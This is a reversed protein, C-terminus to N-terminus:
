PASEWPLAAIMRDAADRLEPALEGRLAAVLGRALAAGSDFRARPDKALAIATWRDVDPHVDVRASPRVPMRHVVAYLITSTDHGSFANRGILTRYAVAGFAFLDARGDVAAGRAQEPAMYHPTGVLAGHTLAGSRDVLAAIGFDVIKWTLGDLFLNQPKLDRHVIGQAHVADLGDGIQTVFAVLEARSLQGKKRLLEALTAGRLREMAIFPLADNPGSTALVHVVHSSGVAGTVSAERVFRAVQTADVLQDRHLVRVAVPENTEIATAEYVEGYAGREIIAGLRFGGLERESYLGVGGRQARSLDARLEDLLAARQSAVRTARQLQEIARLSVDRQRVGTYYALWYVGQIYLAGITYAERGLLRTTAYAGPDRVGAILALSIAGSCVASAIYIARRAALESRGVFHLGIVIFVPTLTLAGFFLIVVHTNVVCMVGLVFLARQDYREPDSFRQHYYFSVVMGVVLAIVFLVRVSPNGHVFPLGLLGVVSALWGLRIFVRTRQVEEERLAQRPTTITGSSLSPPGSADIVTEETGADALGGM